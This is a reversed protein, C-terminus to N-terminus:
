EPAPRLDWILAAILSAVMNPHAARGMKPLTSAMNPRAARGLQAVEVRRLEEVQLARRAGRVHAALPRPALQSRILDSPRPDITHHPHSPGETTASPAADPTADASHTPGEKPVGGGSALVRALGREHAESPDGSLAKEPGRPGVFGPPALRPECRAATASARIHCAGERIHCVGQRRRQHGARFYRAGAM